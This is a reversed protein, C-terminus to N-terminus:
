DGANKKPQDNNGYEVNDYQDAASGGGGGGDDGATPSLGPLGPGGATDYLVPAPPRYRFNFLREFIFM